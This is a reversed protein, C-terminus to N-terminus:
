DTRPDLFMATAVARPRPDALAGVSRAPEVTVVLVTLSAGPLVEFLLHKQTQPRLYPPRAVGSWWQLYADIALKIGFIVSCFLSYMKSSRSATNKLTAKAESFFSRM